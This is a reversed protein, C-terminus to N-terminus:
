RSTGEERGMVCADISPTAHATHTTNTLVRQLKNLHLRDRPDIDPSQVLRVQLAYALDALPVDLLLTTCQPPFAQPIVLPNDTTPTNM